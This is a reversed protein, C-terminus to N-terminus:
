RPIGAAKLFATRNLEGHRACPILDCAGQQQRAACGCRWIHDETNPAGGHAYSVTRSPLGLVSRLYTFTHRFIAM